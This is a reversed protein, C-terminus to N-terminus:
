LWREELKRLLSLQEDCEKASNPIDKLPKKENEDCNLRDVYPKTSESFFTFATNLAGQSDFDLRKEIFMNFFNFFGDYFGDYDNGTYNEILICTKCYDVAFNNIFWTIEDPTLNKTSEM